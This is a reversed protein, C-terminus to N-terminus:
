HVRKDQTTASRQMFSQRLEARRSEPIALHVRVARLQARELEMEVYIEDYTFSCAADYLAMMVQDSLTNGMTGRSSHLFGADAPADAVYLVKDGNGAALVITLCKQERGEELLARAETASADLVVVDLENESAIAIIRLDASGPRYALIRHRLCGSKRASAVVAESVEIRMAHHGHLARGSPTVVNTMQLKGINAVRMEVDQEGGCLVYREQIQREM